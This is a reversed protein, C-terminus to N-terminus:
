GAWKLLFAFYDLENDFYFGYRGPRSESSVEILQWRWEFQLESKCWGLVEEIVGFNKTIIHAHKFSERDRSNLPKDLIM